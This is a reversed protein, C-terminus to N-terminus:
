YQSCTGQKKLRFRLALFLLSLKYPWQGGGAPTHQELGPGWCEQRSVSSRSPEFAPSKTPRLHSSVRSLHRLCAPFVRSAYGQAAAHQSVVPRKRCFLTHIHRLVAGKM